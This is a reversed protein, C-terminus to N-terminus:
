KPKFFIEITCIIKGRHNQDPAIFVGAQNDGTEFRVAVGSPNDIVQHGKKAVKAHRYWGSKTNFKIFIWIADHNKNSYWANDWQINMKVRPTIATDNSLQFEINSIKLSSASLSNTVFLLFLFFLTKKM